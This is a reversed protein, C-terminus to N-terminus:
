PRWLTIDITNQYGWTAAVQGPQYTNTGNTLQLTATLSWSNAYQLYALGNLTVPNRTDSYLHAVPEATPVFSEGDMYGDQTWVSADAGGTSKTWVRIAANPLAPETYPQWVGNVKRYVDALGYRYDYLSSMETYQVYIDENKGLDSTPPTTGSLIPTAPGSAKQGVLCSLIDLEM